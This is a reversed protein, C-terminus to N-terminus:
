NKGFKNEQKKNNKQIRMGFMGGLMACILVPMYAFASGVYQLLLITIVIGVAGGILFGATEYTNKM